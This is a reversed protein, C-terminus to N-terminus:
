YKNLEIKFCDKKFKTLMKKYETKCSLGYISTSFKGNQEEDQNLDEIYKIIDDKNENIYNKYFPFVM